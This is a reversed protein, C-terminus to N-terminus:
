VETNVQRRFAQLSSPQKGWLPKKNWNKRTLGQQPYAFYKRLRGLRKIKWPLSHTTTSYHGWERQGWWSLKLGGGLYFYKIFFGYFGPVTPVRLEGFIAGFIAARLVAAGFVVPETGGWTNCQLKLYSERSVSHLFLKKLVTIKWGQFYHLPHIAVWYQSPPSSQYTRLWSSAPLYLDTPFHGSGTLGGSSSLEM